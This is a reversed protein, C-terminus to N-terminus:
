GIFVGHFCKRIKQLVANERLFIQCIYWQLGYGLECIVSTSHCFSPFTHRHCRSRRIIWRKWSRSIPIHLGSGLIDLGQWGDSVEKHAAPVSPWGYSLALIWRRYGPLDNISRGPQRIMSVTSANSVPGARFLLCQQAFQGSAIVTQNCVQLKIEAQIPM